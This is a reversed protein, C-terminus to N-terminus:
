TTRHVGRSTTMSMHGTVQPVSGLLGPSQGQLPQLGGGEGGWLCTHVCMGRDKMGGRGGEGGQPVWRVQHWMHPVWRVLWLLLPRGTEASSIRRARSFSFARSSYAACVPCSVAVCCCCSACFSANNCGTRGPTRGRGGGGPGGAPLARARTPSGPVAPLLPPLPPHAASPLLSATQLPAPAAPLASCRRDLAGSKRFHAPLQSHPPHPLQSHTPCPLQSHTPRSLQSHTPHSLQSHTPPFLQSHTPRFLQSHPPRPLQSHTPRSLQSHTPHSLESHTPRFLQSHTPRFLQSHTPRFLHMGGLRGCGQRGAGMCTVGQRGTEHM